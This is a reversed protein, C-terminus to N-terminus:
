RRADTTKAMRNLKDACHDLGGLTREVKESLEVIQELDARIDNIWGMASQEVEGVDSDRAGAMRANTALRQINLRAAGGVNWLGISRDAQRRTLRAFRGMSDTIERFREYLAM